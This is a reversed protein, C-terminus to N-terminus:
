KSLLSSGRELNVNIGRFKVLILGWFIVMGIRPEGVIRVLLDRDLFSFFLLNQAFAVEGFHHTCELVVVM